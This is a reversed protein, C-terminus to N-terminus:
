MLKAVVAPVITNLDGVVGLDAIRHIPADPDSNIAVIRRATRMGAIHQVAGSIGLAVYLEPSVSKGTQGIQSSSPAWGNDVAARSAGVAGDLADALAGVVEFNGDVGRGGAVVVRAEALTPRGTSVLPERSTVTSTLATPTFEQDVVTPSRPTPAPGTGGPKVSIVVLPTRARVTTTFAGSAVTKTATIAGETVAASTADTILAAGLRHAAVAAVENGEQGAPVVLVHAGSRSVVDALLEGLVTVLSRDLAPCTVQRIEAAGQAGLSAVADEDLPTTAVACTEGLGAALGVAELSAGDPQTGAAAISVVIKM